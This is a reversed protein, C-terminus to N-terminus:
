YFYLPLEYRRGADQDTVWKGMIVSASTPLVDCREGYDSSKALAAPM